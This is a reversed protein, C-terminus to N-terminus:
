SNQEGYSIELIKLMQNIGKENVGSGIPLMVNRDLFSREVIFKEREFIPIHDWKEYFSSLLIGNNLFLGSVEGREHGSVLAPFAFPAVGFTESDNLKRLSLLPWKTNLRSFNSRRLAIEADIYSSNLSFDIQTIPEYNITPDQIEKYYTEYTEYTKLLIEQGEVINECDKFKQVLELHSLYSESAITNIRRRKSFQTDVPFDSNNSLLIAGDVVPLTKNFSFLIFDPKLSTFSGIDEKPALTQAFDRLLLIQNAKCIEEIYSTNNQLGFFDIAILIAKQSSEFCTSELSEKCPSLDKELHYFHIDFGAMSFPQIIGEPCITPLLVTKIGRHLLIKTLHYLTGRGTAHQFISAGEFFNKLHRLGLERLVPTSRLVTM